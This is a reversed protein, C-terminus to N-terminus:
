LEVEDLNQLEVEDLNMLGWPANPLPTIGTYPGKFKLNQLDQENLNQFGGIFGAGKVIGGVVPGGYGSYKSAAKKIGFLNQLEVENLELNQLDLEELNMLQYDTMGNRWPDNAPNNDLNMLNADADLNMLWGEKKLGSYIRNGRQQM